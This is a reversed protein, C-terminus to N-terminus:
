LRPHGLKMQFQRAQVSISAQKFQFANCLQLIRAVFLWCVVNDLVAAVTLLMQFFNLAEGSQVCGLVSVKISFTKSTRLAPPFRGAVAFRVSGGNLRMCSIFGASPMLTKIMVSLTDSSPVFPLPFVSFLGWM